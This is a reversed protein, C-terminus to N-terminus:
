HLSQASDNMDKLGAVLKESGQLTAEAVSQIADNKKRRVSTSGVTPKRSRAISTDSSSLVHPDNPHGGMPPTVPTTSSVPIHGGTTPAARPQSSQGHVESGHGNRGQLPSVPAANNLDHVFPM